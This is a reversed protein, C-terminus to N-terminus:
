NSSGFKKELAQLIWKEWACHPYVGWSDRRALADNIEIIKKFGVLTPTWIAQERLRGLPKDPVFSATDKLKLLRMGQEITTFELRFDSSFSPNRYVCKGVAGVKEDTPQYGLSEIVRIFENKNKEAIYLDFDGHDRTLQGYLADLGYGGLVWVIVGQEECKLLMLLLSDLRRSQEESPTYEKERSM